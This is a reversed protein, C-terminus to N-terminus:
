LEVSHRSQVVSLRRLMLDDTSSSFGRVGIIGHHQVHRAVSRRAVKPESAWFPAILVWRNGSDLSRDRRANRLVVSPVAAKRYAPPAADPSFPESPNFYQSLW